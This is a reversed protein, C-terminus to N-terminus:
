IGPAQVIESAFESFPLLCIKLTSIVFADLFLIRLHDGGLVQEAIAPLPRGTVYKQTAILLLEPLLEHSHGALSQLQFFHLLLFPLQQCFQQLPLQHVQNTTGGHM